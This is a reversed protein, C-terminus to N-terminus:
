TTQEAAAAPPAWNM